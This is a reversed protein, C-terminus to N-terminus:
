AAVAHQRPICDSLAPITQMFDNMFVQGSVETKLLQSCSSTDCRDSGTSLIQLLHPILSAPLYEMQALRPLVSVLLQRQGKEGSGHLEGLFRLLELYTSPQTALHTTILM